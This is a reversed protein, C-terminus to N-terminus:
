YPDYLKRTFESKQTLGSINTAFYATLSNDLLEQQRFIEVGFHNFKTVQKLISGDVVLECRLLLKFTTMCLTKYASIIMGLSQVM